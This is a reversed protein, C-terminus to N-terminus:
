LGTSVEAPRFIDLHLDRRGWPTEPLTAYILDREAVVGDPLVDEVAIVYPFNKSVKQYERSVNYSTDVPYAPEQAELTFVLTLCLLSALLQNFVTHQHHTLRIIM